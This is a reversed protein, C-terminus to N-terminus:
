SACALQVFSPLYGAAICICVIAITTTITCIGICWVLQCHISQVAGVLFPILEDYAIHQVRGEGGGRVISPIVSAVEDALLGHHHFADGVCFNYSYVKLQNLDRLCRQRGLCTINCKMRADSLSTYSTAFVNGTADVSYVDSGSVVNHVTVADGVGLMTKVSGSFVCADSSVRMKENGDIDLCEAGIVRTCGKGREGIEVNNATATAYSRNQIRFVTEADHADLSPYGTLFGAAAVRAVRLVGLGDLGGAVDGTLDIRIAGGLLVSGDRARYGVYLSLAAVDLLGRTYVTVTAGGSGPTGTRTYITAGTAISAAPLPTLLESDSAVILTRNTNTGHRVNLHMMVTTPDVGSPRDLVAVEIPSARGVIVIGSAEDCQVEVQMTCTGVVCYLVTCYLVHLRWNCSVV